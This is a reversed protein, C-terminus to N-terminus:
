AIGQALFARIVGNTWGFGDQVAYEGGGAEQQPDRVNYKEMFKGTRQYVQEVLATFRRAITQALATHGYHLLGLVAMWHLPAWGNPADWQQDTETLTCLLGGSELFRQELHVAIAAAQEDTAVHCFLPYVAALSWIPSQQQTPWLYDFFFGAEANWFYTHIAQRRQEAANAYAQAAEPNTGTLWTALQREILFLLCNLDIPLISTTCISALDNPNRLWRSSYDWGSEAGARLDTYLIPNNTAAQEGLALDEAHAEERPINRADWYRNLTTNADLRVAHQDAQPYITTSNPNHQMWYRYEAELAPLYTLIATTGQAREYAMLMAVFFPPQSRSLFYTRNGNPIHGYQEILHAFNNLMGVVLDLRGSAFLGEITFYSDWYFIERFRGGPVVYPFPLALLTSSAAPLQDPARQFVNWLADIQAAMPATPQSHDASPAEPLRFHEHVFQELMSRFAAEIQSPDHIPECDPFTKSDPFIQARQVAEFLAGSTQLRQISM